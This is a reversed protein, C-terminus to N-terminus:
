TTRRPSLFHVDKNKTTTSDYGSRLKYDGIIADFPNKSPM